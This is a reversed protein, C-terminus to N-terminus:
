SRYKLQTRHLWVTEGNTLTVSFLGPTRSSEFNVRNIPFQRGRIIAYTAKM